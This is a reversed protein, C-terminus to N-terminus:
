MPRVPPPASDAICAIACFRRPKPSHPDALQDPTFNTQMDSRRRGHERSQTYWEPRIEGEAADLLAALAEPQPEFVRVAARMAPTARM